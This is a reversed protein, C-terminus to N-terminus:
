RIVESCALFFNKGFIIDSTGFSLIPWLLHTLVRGEMSVVSNMPIVVLRLNNLNM